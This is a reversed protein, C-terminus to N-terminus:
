VFSFNKTFNWLGAALFIAQDRLLDSKNRFKQVLINYRKIGAIANEVFVRTKSVLTNHAKQEPTLQPNPNNKTKYPKKFPINLKKCEYDKVFGIYGLDIWVSLQEFWAYCAPFEEQLMKYDHKAGLVTQGVFLVAQSM